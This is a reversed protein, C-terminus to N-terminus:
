SATVETTVKPNTAEELESDSMLEIPKATTCPPMLMAVKVVEPKHAVVPVVVPAVVPAAVPEVKMEAFPKQTLPANRKAAGDLHKDLEKMGPLTKPHATKPARRAELIERELQAKRTMLVHNEHELRANKKEVGSCREQLDLHRLKERLAQINPQEDIRLDLVKERTYAALALKVPEVATKVEDALESLKDLLNGLKGVLSGLGHVSGDFKVNTEGM